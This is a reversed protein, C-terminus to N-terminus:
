FELSCSLDFDTVVPMSFLCHFTTEIGRAGSSFLCRWVEYHLSMLWYDSTLGHYETLVLLVFCYFM